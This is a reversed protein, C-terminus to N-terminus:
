LSHEKKALYFLWEIAANITNSGDKTLLMEETFGFEKIKKSQYDPTIYYTMLGYDHGPDNIWGYDPKVEEAAKNKRHNKYYYMARLIYKMHPVSWNMKEQWPHKGFNVHNRNHTSFSFWGGTKLVRNVGAFVLDRDTHNVYDIGNFSFLIFDFQGDHFQSLDRGDCTYFEVGPFKTKCHNVFAESYDVGVYNSWRQLLKATTRGGGIGIDLVKAEAGVRKLVEDILINEGPLDVELEDYWQVIDNRNWLELNKDM